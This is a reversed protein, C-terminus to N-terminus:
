KIVGTHALASLHVYLAIQEVINFDSNNLCDICKDYERYKCLSNLGIYCEHFKCDKSEAEEKKIFYCAIRCRTCEETNYDAACGSDYGWPCPKIEKETVM